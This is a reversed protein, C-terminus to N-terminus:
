ETELRASEYKLWQEVHIMFHKKDRFGGVKKKVTRKGNKKFKDYSPKTIEELSRVMMARNELSHGTENNKLVLFMRRYRELTPKDIIEKAM